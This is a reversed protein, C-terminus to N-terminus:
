TVQNKLVSSIITNSHNSQVMCGYKLHPETPNLTQSKPASQTPNDMSVCERLIDKKGM